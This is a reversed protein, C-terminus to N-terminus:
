CHCVVSGSILIGNLVSHTSCSKVTAILRGFVSAGIGFTLIKSIISASSDLKTPFGKFLKFLVHKFTVKLMALREAYFVSRKVTKIKVSMIAPLITTPGSSEYLRM